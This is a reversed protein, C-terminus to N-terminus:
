LVLAIDRPTQNPLAADIDSVDSGSTYGSVYNDAVDLSAIVRPAYMRTSVHLKAADAEVAAKAASLSTLDGDVLIGQAEGFYIGGILKARIMKEATHSM